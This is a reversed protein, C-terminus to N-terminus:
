FSLQGRKKNRRDPYGSCLKKPHIFFRGLWLNITKANERDQFKGSVYTGHYFFLGPIIDETTPVVQFKDMYYNIFMSLIFFIQENASLFDNGYRVIDVPMADCLKTYIQKIESSFLAPIWRIIYTNESLAIIDPVYASKELLKLVFSHIVTLFSIVPPYVSLDGITLVQLYEILDEMDETEFPLQKDKRKLKGKILAKGKFIRMEVSNYLVEPSGEIIDTIRIHKKVIKSMKKYQDTMIKKFDDKLYFLPRETLLKTLPQSLDPIESFDIHELKERYYSFEEPKKVTLSAISIIDEEASRGSSLNLEKVLDFNHMGFVLFPNKDIENAIIYVVAALHKCPVAWDPCSCHMGMQKWSSPFLEIKEKSLEQHLETPLMRGELQSMYYPNSSIISIIKEKEKKKFPNITMSIKYPTPRTGAVRASIKNGEIDISIVSGNRAYRQGRPLRNSYDMNNLAALWKAGWWTNGFQIRAM